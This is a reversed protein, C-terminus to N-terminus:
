EYKFNTEKLEKLLLFLSFTNKQVFTGRYGIFCSLIVFYFYKEVYHEWIEPLFNNYLVNRLNAWKDQYSCCTFSSLYPANISHYQYPFASNSTSLLIGTGSQGGCVECLSTQFRTRAEATLPCRSAAQAM